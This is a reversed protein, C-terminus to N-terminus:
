SCIGFCKRFINCFIFKDNNSDIKEIQFNDSNPKKILSINDCNEKQKKLGINKFYNMIGSSAVYNKFNSERNKKKFFELINNKNEIDVNINSSMSKILENMFEEDAYSVFPVSVNWDVHSVFVPAM